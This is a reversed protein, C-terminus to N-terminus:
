RLAFEKSPALDIVIEDGNEYANVHHLSFVVDGQIEQVEGTALSM